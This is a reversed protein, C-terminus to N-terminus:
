ARRLSAARKYANQIAAELIKQWHKKELIKFAAETTGGKTKVQSVLNEFSFRTKESSRTALENLINQAFRSAGIVTQLAIRDADKQSFGLKNAAKSLANLFAFVYAPGSGSLATAANILNETKVEIEEGFARLISKVLKEQSPQLPAAPKAASKWVSMGFGIQAPLNPMVRVITPLSYDGSQAFPKKVQKQTQQEIHRTQKKASAIAVRLSKMITQLSVGAAISILPQNKRLSLAIEQLVSAVAFPKVAVIVVNSKRAVEINKEGDSALVRFGKELLRKGIAKGMHGYGIIGVIHALRSGM